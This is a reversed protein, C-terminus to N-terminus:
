NLCLNQQLNESRAGTEVLLIEMNLIQRQWTKKSNTTSATKSFKEYIQLIRSLDLGRGLPIYNFCIFLLINGIKFINQV